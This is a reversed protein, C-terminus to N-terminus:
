SGVTAQRSVDAVALEVNAAIAVDNEVLVLVAVPLALEEWALAARLLLDHVFSKSERSLLGSDNSRIYAPLFINILSQRFLNFAHVCASGKGARTTQRLKALERV